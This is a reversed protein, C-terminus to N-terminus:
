VTQVSGPEHGHIEKGEAVYRTVATIKSNPFIGCYLKAAEESQDNFWLCPRIKSLTAM